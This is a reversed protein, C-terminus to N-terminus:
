GGLAAFQDGGALLHKLRAVIINFIFLSGVCPNETMGLLSRDSSHSTVSAMARLLGARGIPGM